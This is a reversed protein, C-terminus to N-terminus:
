SRITTKFDEIIRLGAIAEVRDKGNIAAKVKSENIMLYERPVSALDEVEFSYRISGSSMAYQGRARSFDAVPAAAAKEARRATEDAAGAEELLDACGSQIATSAVREAKERLLRAEEAAARQAAAAKARNFISIQSEIAMVAKNLPDRIGLFFQQVTKDAQFFPAKVIERTNETLKAQAKIQAGVDTADKVDQDTQLGDPHDTKFNEFM